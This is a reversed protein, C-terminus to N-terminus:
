VKIDGPFPFGPFAQNDKGSRRVISLGLSIISATRSQVHGFVPRKSKISSVHMFHGFCKIDSVNLDDLLKFVPGIFTSSLRSVFFLTKHFFLREPLKKM